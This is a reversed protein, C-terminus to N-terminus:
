PSRVRDPRGSGHIIEPFEYVTVGNEPVVATVRVGDELSRLTALATRMPWGLRAATRTATLLGAEREALRLVDLQRQAHAARESARLIGRDLYLVGFGAAAMVVVCFGYFPRDWRLLAWQTAAYWALLFLSLALARRGITRLKEM